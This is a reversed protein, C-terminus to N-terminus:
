AEIGGADPDAVVTLGLRYRRKSRILAVVDPDEALIALADAVLESALAAPTSNTLLAMAEFVEVHGDRITVTTRARRRGDRDHDLRM